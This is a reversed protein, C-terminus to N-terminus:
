GEYPTLYQQALMGFVLADLVHRPQTGKNKIRFHFTGQAHALAIRSQIAWIAEANCDEVNEFDCRVIPQRARSRLAVGIWVDDLYQEIPGKCCLIHPVLDKSLVIGAGSIYHFLEGHRDDDPMHNVHGAYYNTRPQDQLFTQLKPLHYFSSLNTRLIYDCELNEYCYQLAKLTKDTIRHGFGPYWRSYLCDGDVGLSDDTISSETRLFFIQMGHLAANRRWMARGLAFVPDNDADIVLIVIKVM